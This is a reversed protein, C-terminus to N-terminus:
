CIGVFAVFITYDDAKFGNKNRWRVLIRLLIAITALASFSGIAAIISPAKTEGLHALEYQIEAPTLHYKAAVAAIAASMRFSPEFVTSEFDDVSTAM